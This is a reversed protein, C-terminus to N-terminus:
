GRWWTPVRVASRRPGGLLRTAGRASSQQGREPLSSLAGPSRGLGVSFPEPYPCGLRPGLAPASSDGCARAPPLPFRAPPFGPSPSPRLWSCSLASRPSKWAGFRPAACSLAARRHYRTELPSLRSSPLESRRGTEWGGGLELPRWSWERKLALDGPRPEPVGRPSARRPWMGSFSSFRAIDVHGVRVLRSAAEGAVTRGRSDLFRLAEGAQRRAKHHLM